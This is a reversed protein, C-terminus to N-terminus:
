SLLGLPSTGGTRAAAIPRRGCLLLSSSGSQARARPRRLECPVACQGPGATRSSEATDGLVRASMREPILSAFGMVM